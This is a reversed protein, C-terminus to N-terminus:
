RLQITSTGLFSISITIILSAEQGEYVNQRDKHIIVTTKIKNKKYQKRAILM